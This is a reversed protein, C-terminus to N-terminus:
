PQKTLSKSDRACGDRQPKHRQSRLWTSTGRSTAPLTASCTNVAKVCTGEAGCQSPSIGTHSGSGTPLLLAENSETEASTGKEPVHRRRPRSRAAANASRGPLAARRPASVGKSRRCAVRQVRQAAQQCARQVLRRAHAASCRAAAASKLHERASVRKICVHRAASRAQAARSAAGEGRPEQHAWM